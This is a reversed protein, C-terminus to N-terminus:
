AKNKFNDLKIYVLDDESLEPLFTMPPGGSKYMKSQQESVILNDIKLKARTLQDQSFCLKMSAWHLNPKSCTKGFSTIDAEKVEKCGMYTVIKCRVPNQSAFDVVKFLPSSM